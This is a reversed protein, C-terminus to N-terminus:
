DNTTTLAKIEALADDVLDIIDQAHSSKESIWSRNWAFYPSNFSQCNNEPWQVLCYTCQVICSTCAYNKIVYECLYCGFIPVDDIDIGHAKFYDSKKKGPNDRLWVWQARTKLLAEKADMQRRKNKMAAGRMRITARFFVTSGVEKAASSFM